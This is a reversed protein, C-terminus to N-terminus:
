PLTELKEEQEEKKEEGGWGWRSSALSQGPIEWLGLFVALKMGLAQRNPSPASQERKRLKLSLTIRAKMEFLSAMKRGELVALFKAGM